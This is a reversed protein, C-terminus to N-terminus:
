KLAERFAAHYCRLLDEVIETAQKKEDETPLPPAERFEKRLIMFVMMPTVDPYHYLAREVAQALQPTIKEPIKQETESSM